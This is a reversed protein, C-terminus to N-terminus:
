RSHHEELQAKRLIDSIKSEVRGGAECISCPRRDEFYAIESWISVTGSGLCQRCIPTDKTLGGIPIRQEATAMIRIRDVNMLLSM